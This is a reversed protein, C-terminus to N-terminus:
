LFWLCLHRFLKWNNNWCCWLWINENGCTCWDSRQEVLLWWSEEPTKQVTPRWGHLRNTAAHQQTQLAKLSVVTRQTTRRSSSLLPCSLSSTRTACWSPSSTVTGWWTLLCCSATRRLRPSAAVAAANGPCASYANSCPGGSSSTSGRTWSPTWPLSGSPPWTQKPTMRFTTPLFGCRFCIFM